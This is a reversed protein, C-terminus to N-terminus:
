RGGGGVVAIVERRPDLARRAARGVDDAGIRSLAVQRGRDGLLPLGYAEDRALVAAVANRTRLAAARAGIMRRTARTVEDATVGAAVVRAFAARVAAVAAEVRAPACSFAVALYGPEIAEASRGRVRCSFAKDDILRGEAGTLIEALLELPLRDPDGPAVTPYGVVVEADGATSKRFVTTPEVQAPPAAPAPAAPAVPAIPNPASAPAAAVPAPVAAVVPATAAPPPAAALPALASDFAAIVRAPDVDGVVAMVLRGPPFNRRYYDLLRVRTFAGVVEPGTRRVRDPWLTERFLRLAAEGGPSTGRAVAAM